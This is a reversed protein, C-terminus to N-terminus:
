NYRPDDTTSNVVFRKQHLWLRVSKYSFFLAGSYVVTSIATNKFFPLALYYSRLLGTITKEYWPTLGWVGLNTVLFFLVSGLLSTVGIRVWNDDKKIYFGIIVILLLSTYVVMMLNLSYSGIFLDSIIMVGLPVVFSIKRPLYAASFLTLAIIPTFNPAHPLFRFGVGILILSIALLYDVIKDNIEFM